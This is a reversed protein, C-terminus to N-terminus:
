LTYIVLDAYWHAFNLQETPPKLNLFTGLDRNNIGILEIGEIELVRDM